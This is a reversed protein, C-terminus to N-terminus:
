GEREARKEEERKRERKEERERKGRLGEEMGPFARAPRLKWKWSFIRSTLTTTTPPELFLFDRIGEYGGM